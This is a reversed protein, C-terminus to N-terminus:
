LGFKSPEVNIELLQKKFVDLAQETGLTNASWDGGVCINHLNKGYFSEMIEEDDKCINWKPYFSDYENVPSADLLEHMCYIELSLKLKHCAKELRKCGSYTAYVSVIVVKEINQCREKLDKIAAILNRGAAISDYMIALKIDKQIQEEKNKPIDIKYSCVKGAIGKIGNKNDKIHHVDMILYLRSEFGSGLYTNIFPSQAIPERILMASVAQVKPQYKHNISAKFQKTSAITYTAACLDQARAMGLHMRAPKHNKEVILSHTEQSQLVYIPTNHSITTKYLIYKSPKDKYPTHVTSTELQTWTPQM